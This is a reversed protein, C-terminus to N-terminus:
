VSLEHEAKRRLEIVENLKDKVENTLGNAMNSIHSRVAMDARTLSDIADKFVFVFFFIIYILLFFDISRDFM